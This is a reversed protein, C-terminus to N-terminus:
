QGADSAGGDIRRPLAARLIAQDAPDLVGLRRLSIGNRRAALRNFQLYSRFFVAERPTSWILPGRGPLHTVLLVRRDTLLGERPLLHNVLDGLFALGFIFGVAATGARWEPLLALLIAASVGALVLRRRPSLRSWGPMIPAAFRHELTEGPDLSLLSM